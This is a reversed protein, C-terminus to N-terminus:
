PTRPMTKELLAATDDPHLQLVQIARARAAVNLWLGIQLRDAVEEATM